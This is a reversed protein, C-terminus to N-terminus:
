RRSFDPILQRLSQFCMGFGVIKRWNWFSWHDNLTERRVSPTMERTSTALPNISSWESEVGEGYTRGVQPIFNLSFASHCPPGHMPLHFKPVAFDFYKSNLDSGLANVFKTIRHPKRFNKHFQCAIDYSLVIRLAESDALTSHVIYDM